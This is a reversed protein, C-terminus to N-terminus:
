YQPLIEVNLKGVVEEKRHLIPSLIETQVNMELKIVSLIYKCDAIAVSNSETAM